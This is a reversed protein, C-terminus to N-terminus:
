AKSRYSEYSFRRLHAQYTIVALTQIQEVSVTPTADVDSGGCASLILVVLLSLMVMFKTRKMSLDGKM